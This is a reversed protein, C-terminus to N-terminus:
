QKNPKTTNIRAAVANACVPDIAPVTESLLPATTWCASIM